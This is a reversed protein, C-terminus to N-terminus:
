NAVLMDLEKLSAISEIKELAMLRTVMSVKLIFDM